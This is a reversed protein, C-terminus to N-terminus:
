LDVHSGAWKLNLQVQKLSPLCCVACGFARVPAQPSIYNDDIAEWLGRGIVRSQGREARSGRFGEISLGLLGVYLM